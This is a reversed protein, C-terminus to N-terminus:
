GKLFDLLEDTKTAKVEPMLDVLQKYLVSYKQVTANYNKLAGPLEVPGEQDIADRLKILTRQMFEIETYLAKAIPQRDQPMNELLKKIDKSIVNNRAM